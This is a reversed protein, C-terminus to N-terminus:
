YLIKRDCTDPNEFQDKIHHQINLLNFFDKLDMQVLQRLNGQTTAGLTGGESCNYWIGPFNCTFLWDYFLKFNHYSQWTKVKIGYIDTVTLCNGMNADYKSAWPHFQPKEGYSFSMSAGMFAVISSGLVAKAFYTCAGLVNGGTSFDARFTEISDIRSITDLDPIVANFFYIEGQWQRILDPHSGVYAILVKDKTLAWYDKDKDGGESVEEITIPGSDLSVYYDVKIGLDELYHFNHLCSVVTIGPNELLVHANDKLCPGAGVVIAPKFKNLGWLKGVSNEKFSGVRAKNMRTQNIWTEKWYDVTIKDNSAAQNYTAQRDIQADCYPQYELAVVATKVM